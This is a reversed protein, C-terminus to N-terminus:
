ERETESLSAYRAKSVDIGHRIDAGYREVLQTSRSDSRRECIQLPKAPRSLKVQGGGQRM